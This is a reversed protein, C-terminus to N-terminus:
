GHLSSLRGTDQNRHPNLTGNRRSTSKLGRMIKGSPTAAHGTRRSLASPKEAVSLVLAKEPPALYLGVSDAAKAAFEPDTVGAM